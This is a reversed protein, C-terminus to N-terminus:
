TSGLAVQTSRRILAVGDFEALLKSAGTEGMRSSRGAALLIVFVRPGVPRENPPPENDDRNSM